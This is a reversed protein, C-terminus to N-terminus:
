NICSTDAATRAKETAGTTPAAKPEPATVAQGVGNFDTGLVLQVTGAVADPSKVKKAGPVAAALARARAEDGEAYRIETVEYDGSDANGTGAVVFGAGTLGTAASAALGSRGSGNFVQVAVEAPAATKPAEASPSAAPEQPEASLDAFFAHLTTEDELRIISGAQEDRDTGRNPITQFDISGPSISQMQQALDFFDLNQDVTMSEAAAGILERQKGPNVLVDQSVMKRMVGAM